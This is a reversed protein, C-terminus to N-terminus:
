TEQQAVDLKKLYISGVSIQHTIAGYVVCKGTMVTPVQELQLIIFGFASVGNLHTYELGLLSDNYFRGVFHIKFRHGEHEFAGEGLVQQHHSFFRFTIPISPLAAKDGIVASSGQWISGDILDIRNEATPVTLPPNKIKCKLILRKTGVGIIWTALAIIISAAVKSWVPDRWLKEMFSLLDISLIQAAGFSLVLGNSSNLTEVLLPAANTLVGLITPLENILGHPSLAKLDQACCAPHPVIPHRPISSIM